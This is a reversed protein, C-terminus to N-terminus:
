WINVLIANLEKDPTFNLLVDKHYRSSKIYKVIGKRLKKCKDWENILHLKATYPEIRVWLYMPLQEVELACHLPYFSRRIFQLSDTDNWNHGLIFLFTYYALTEYKNCRYFTRWVESGSILVQKDTPSIHEVIFQVTPISLEKNNKLWTLVESIKSLCYQELLPDLSYSISSNLYEMVEFTIDPVKKLFYDLLNCNLEHHRYLVITFLRDWADFDIFCNTKFVDYAIIFQKEPLDIWFSYKLIEPNAMVLSMYVTWYNQALYRYDNQLLYTSSNKLTYEGAANIRDSDLISLLFKAYEDIGSNEKLTIVRQTFDLSEFDLLDESVSSALDKLVVTEPSFFNSINKKCFTMKVKEGEKVTPFANLIIDLITTFSPTNGVNAIADDLYKLLLGVTCLKQFSSGIDSSFLRLAESTDSEKRLMTRCISKVGDCINEIAVSSEKVEVSLSTGASAAFQLNHEVKCYKRGYASGSCMFVKNFFELPLYQLLLLILNQYYTSDQEVRYLMQTTQNNNVINAYLWILTNEDFNDNVVCEVGETFNIIESYSVYDGKTPRKFVGTLLRFDFKEDLNHLDIILSHTWVCGPREMDDAYWSKSVVYHVGDSLPYTTIYSNDRNGSYESWDTFMKMKEDDQTSLQYSSALLNHGHSYGHLAQHIIM